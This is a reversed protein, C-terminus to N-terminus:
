RRPDPCEPSASRRRVPCPLQGLSRPALQAALNRFQAPRQPAVQAFVVTKCKPQVQVVELPQLFEALAQVLPDGLQALRVALLDLLQVRNRTNVLRPRLRDQRLHPHVHLHKGALAMQTGPRSDTRAVILTRTLSSATADGLTVTPQPASQHQGSLCSA